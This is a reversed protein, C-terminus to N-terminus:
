NPAIFVGDVVLSEAVVLANKALMAAQVNNERPIWAFSVFDFVVVLSLIDSVVGYLEPSGTGSKLAKVLQTSDSEFCVMRLGEQIGLKVAELLALAEALLSSTVFSAYSSTSITGTPALLFCGLGAKARQIKWAADSRITATGAPQPPDLARPGAAPTTQPDKNICWERSLIIAKSLTDEPSASRGEFVFKNREKWISWLIWPVLVGSSIGSPPLCIM